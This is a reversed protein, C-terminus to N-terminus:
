VQVQRCLLESFAMGGLIPCVFHALEEKRKQGAQPGHRCSALAFVLSVGSTRTRPIGAWEM